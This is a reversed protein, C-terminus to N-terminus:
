GTGTLAVIALGSRKLLTTSSSGLVPLAGLLLWLHRVHPVLTAQPGNSVAGTDSEVSQPYAMSIAHNIVAFGIVIVAFAILGARFKRVDGQLLGPLLVLFSAFIALTHFQLGVYLTVVAGVLYGSRGTREWAFVLSMYAAVCTVLFVYMRATQADEIFSPLFAVAATLALNWVPTLFRKGVKWALVILLVGCLASPLRMAWESQGFAMISAAMLYLQGVARPYFMGSPMLPLGQNVLSMVPLAMTKEDGHLGVAGLGWFRVVAGALVIAALIWSPRLGGLRQEMPGGPAGPGVSSWSPTVVFLAAFNKLLRSIMLFPQGM